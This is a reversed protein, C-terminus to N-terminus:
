ENNIGFISNSKHVSINEICDVALNAQTLRQCVEEIDFLHDEFDLYVHLHYPLFQDVITSM